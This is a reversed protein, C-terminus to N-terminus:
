QVELYRLVRGSIGNPNAWLLRFKQVRVSLLFQFLVCRKLIRNKSAYDAEPLLVHRRDCLCSAVKM